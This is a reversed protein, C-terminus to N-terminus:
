IEAIEQRPAQKCTKLHRPMQYRTLNKNCFKCTAKQKHQEIIKEKHDDQYKKMKEVIIDKNDAYYQKHSRGAVYQNYGKNISDLERITRGEEATLQEKCTCPFLKILEIHFNEVGIEVFAKYIKRHPQFNCKSKHDFFRKSLPQCTSGVYVLDNVCNVIKYIRGGQYNPMM